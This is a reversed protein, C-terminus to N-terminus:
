FHEDMIHQEQERIKRALAPNRLKDITTVDAQYSQSNIIEPIDHIWATRAVNQQMSEPIDLSQTFLVMRKVHDAVNDFFIHGYDEDHFRYRAITLGREIYHAVDEPVVIHDITTDFLTRSFPTTHRKPM